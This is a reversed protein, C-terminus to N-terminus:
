KMIELLEVEFILLENPGIKQGAGRAGYGLDPHIYLIWKSGQKMMTLAETWGKIVRNVTFTAPQGREYSSDFVTGDILTGKYHVKVKVTDSPSEGVGEELVKYQLGSETTQVGEKTKNEELFKNAEGLKKETLIKRQGQQFNRVFMDAEDLTFIDEDGDYVDSIGKAILQADVETFQSKLNTGILLGLAYSASDVESSVKKGVLPTNECSLVLTALAVFLYLVRFKMIM